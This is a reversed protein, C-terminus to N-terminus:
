LRLSTMAATPATQAAISTTSLRQRVQGCTAGPQATASRDAFPARIWPVPRLAQCSISRDIAGILSSISPWGAASAIPPLAAPSGTRRITQSALWAERRPAPRFTPSTTVVPDQVPM